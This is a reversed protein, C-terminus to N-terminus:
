QKILKLREISGDRKQVQLLYIGDEGPIEFSKQELTSFEMVIKGKLDFIAVELLDNTSFYFRGKSPNPYIRFEESAKNDNLSTIIVPICNSTDRCNGDRVEVAYSGSLTALFSNSTAASIPAYGNGCDLWQYSANQLANVQLLANNQVVQTSLKNLSLDIYLISDCGAHNSITDIYNGSSTFLKGGPSVLFQCGFAKISDSSSNCIDISALYFDQNGNSTLQHTSSSPDFDVTNSFAGALYYTDGAGKYLGTANDSGSGGFSFGNDIEGNKKFNLLFVDGSGHHPIMYTKQPDPDADFTTFHYGSVKVHGNKEVYLNHVAEASAGGGSTTWNLNLNADFNSVYYDRSGNSSQNAQGSGPDFDVSGYFYGGVTLNGASDVGSATIVTNESGGWSLSQLYNGNFDSALVFANPESLPATHIATFSGQPNFDVPGYFFGSLYVVGFPATCLSMGAAFSSGNNSTPFARNWLFQGNLDFASLYINDGSSGSKTTFGPGPDFDATGTYRGSVFLIGSSNVTVAHSRDESPSGFTNVWILQGSPNLKLVFSDFAGGATRNETVNPDPDFDVTGGFWGCVYINGAADLALSSALDANTTGGAAYVWQLNGNIDYKSVFLDGGGQSSVNNANAGPDFDVTNRFVGCAYVNGNDDSVARVIRDLQSSGGGIAFNFAQAMLENASVLFLLLLWFSGKCFPVSRLKEKLVIQNRM